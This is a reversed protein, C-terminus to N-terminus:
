TNEQWNVGQDTFDPHTETAKKKLMHGGELFFSRLFRARRSRFGKWRAGELLKKKPPKKKFSFFM